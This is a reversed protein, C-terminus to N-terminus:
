SWVSRVVYGYKRKYDALLLTEGDTDIVMGDLVITLHRRFGGPSAVQLLGTLHQQGRRPHRVIPSRGLYETVVKSWVRSHYGKSHNGNVPGGYRILDRYVQEYSRGFYNAISVVVCDKPRKSTEFAM